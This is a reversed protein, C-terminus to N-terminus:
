PDYHMINSCINYTGSPLFLTQKADRSANVANQLKVTVDTTGDMEAVTLNQMHKFDYMGMQTATIQANSIQVVFLLYAVFAFELLKLKNIYQKM